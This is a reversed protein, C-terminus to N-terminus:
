SCFGRDGLVLDGAKWDDAIAGAGSMDHSRLRAVTMRLRLGTSVQFLTLLKAM